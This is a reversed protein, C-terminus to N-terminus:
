QIAHRIIYYRMFMFLLRTHNNALPFFLSLRFICIPVVFSGVPLRRLRMQIHLVKYRLSCCGPGLVRMDPALPVALVTIAQPASALSSYPPIRAHAAKGIQLSPNEYPPMSMQRRRSEQARPATCQENQKQFCKYSNYTKHPKEKAFPSSLAVSAQRSRSMGFCNLVPGWAAM